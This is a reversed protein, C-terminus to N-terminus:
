PREGRRRLHWVGSYILLAITLISILGIGARNLFQKLPHVERSTIGAFGSAVALALALGCLVSLSMMERGPFSDEKLPLMELPVKRQWRQYWWGILILGILTSVVHLARHVAIPGLSTEVIIMKLWTLNQVLWGRWHTFSDWAFHTFAGIALSTIIVLFRNLPRFRFDRALPTLRKRHHSPFLTLAPQKLFGHFLWLAIAGVPLCFVFIGLISHSLRDLHPIPFFYAFDPSVSGVILASAVLGKRALPICAATHALIFPM